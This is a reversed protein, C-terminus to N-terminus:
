GLRDYTDRQNLYWWVVGGIVVLLVVVAGGILAWRQTRQSSSAANARSEAQNALSVANDFNGANYASKANELLDRADGVSAGGAAASEVASEAREIEGRADRSAQTYPRVGDWTEIVSASGGPQAQTFAAYTVSQAPAYSWREVPPTTGTLDVTVRTVGDSADLDYDFSQGNLVRSDVQAGTNDYTTVVWTVDTLETEGRLTWENYQGSFPETFTFQTEQQTGVEVSGPVDGSADVALAGGAATALLVVAALALKSCRSSNM